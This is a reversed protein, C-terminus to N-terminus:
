EGSLVHVVFLLVLYCVTAALLAAGLNLAPAAKGAVVAVGAVSFFGAANVMVGHADEGPRGSHEIALIILAAVIGLAAGILVSGL